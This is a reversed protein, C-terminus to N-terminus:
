KAHVNKVKRDESCKACLIKIPTDWSGHQGTYGGCEDCPLIAM